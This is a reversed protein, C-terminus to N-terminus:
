GGSNGLREMVAELRKCAILNVYGYHARRPEPVLGNAARDNRYLGYGLAALDRYLDRCRAGTHWVMADSFEIMLVPADDGGLLRRAGRLVNREWGEVDIKLLAIRGADGSLRNGRASSPRTDRGQGTRAAGM